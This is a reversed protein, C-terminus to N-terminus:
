ITNKNTDLSFSCQKHIIKYKEKASKLLNHPKVTVNEQFRAWKMWQLWSVKLCLM